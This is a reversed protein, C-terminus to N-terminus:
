PIMCARYLVPCKKEDITWVRALGKGRSSRIVGASELRNLARYITSENYPLSTRLDRITCDKELMSIVVDIVSRWVSDRGKAALLILKIEGVVHRLEIDPIAKRNVRQLLIDLIRDWLEAIAADESKKTPAQKSLYEGKALTNIQVEKFNCHWTSTSSGWRFRYTIGQHLSDRPWMFLM